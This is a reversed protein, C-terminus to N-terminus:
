RNLTNDLFRSSALTMSGRATITYTRGNLFTVGTRTLVNTTSGATRTFLDYSGEPVKVFESGAKYAVEGGIVIETGLERDRLTLTMPQSNSIANVFRVYATSWDFTAPFKDEIVFADVTKAGSDYIGSQYFSYSKGAQLNASVSSIPLDKDTAGAIRGSLTHQGPDIAIYAGGAGAAGYNVGLNSETGTASGIATMKRDGAYFNVAPSGVGFNFFKVLARTEPLPAAIDQWANEECAGTVLAASFLLLLSRHIRKM